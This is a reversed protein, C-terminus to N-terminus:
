LYGDCITTLYAFLEKAPESSMDVGYGSKVIEWGPKPALRGTGTGGQAGKKVKRRKRQRAFPPLAARNQKVRVERVGKPFNFYINDCGWCLSCELVLKGKTYMRLGLPPSHCRSQEGPPLQRWLGLVRQTEADTLYVVGRNRLRGQVTLPVLADGEVGQLIVVGIADIDGLRPLPQETDWQSM